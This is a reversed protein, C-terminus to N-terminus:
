SFSSSYVISSVYIYIYIYIYAYINHIRIYIYINVPPGINGAWKNGPGVKNGSRVKKGPGM